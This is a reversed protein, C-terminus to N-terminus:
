QYLRYRRHTVLWRKTFVKATEKPSNWYGKMVQPGKIALEGSQGFPVEHQDNDLICIDTSSVPLGITGNFEKLTVPNITVCPSTETLGYAELIPAHTIEKWKDAVVKQVAMGGGLALHLRSFDLKVFAPDKM